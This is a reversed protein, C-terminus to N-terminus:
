EYVRNLLPGIFCPGNSVCLSIALAWTVCMSWHASACVRVSFACVFAYVYVCPWSLRSWKLHSFSQLRRDLLVNKCDPKNFYHWNKCISGIQCPFCAFEKYAQYHWHQPILCYGSCEDSQELIDVCTDVLHCCVSFGDRWQLWSSCLVSGWCCLWLGSIVSLIQMNPM